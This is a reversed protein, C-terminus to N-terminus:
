SEDHGLYNFKNFIKVVDLFIRQRPLLFLVALFYFCDSLLFAMKVYLSNVNEM